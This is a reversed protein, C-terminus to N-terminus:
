KRDSISLVEEKKRYKIRRGTRHMKEIVSDYANEGICFRDLPKGCAIFIWLSKGLGTRMIGIPVCPLILDSFWFIHAHPRKEWLLEMIELSFTGDQAVVFLDVEPGDRVLSCFDEQRVYPTIEVFRLYERACQDLQGLLIELEGLNENYLAIKM